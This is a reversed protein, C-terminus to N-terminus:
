IIVKKISDNVENLLDSFQAFNISKPQVDWNAPAIMAPHDDEDLENHKKKYLLVIEELIGQLMGDSTAEAANDAYSMLFKRMDELGIQGDHDMDLYHFEKIINEQVLLNKKSCGALLFETFQILGDGGDAFDICSIIRKMEAVPLELNFKFKFQDCFEEATLEGDKEDDLADFIKRLNEKERFHLFRGVMHQLVEKQFLYKPKFNRCSMFVDYVFKSDIQKYKMNEVQFFAHTIVAGSDIRENPDVRFCQELIDLLNDTPNERYENLKPRWDSARIKEFM